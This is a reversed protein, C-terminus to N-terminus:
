GGQVEIVKGVENMPPPNGEFQVLLRVVETKRTM